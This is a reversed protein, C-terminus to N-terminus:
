WKLFGRKKKEPAPPATTPETRAAPAPQVPAASEVAVSFTHGCELCKEVNNPLEYLSKRGCKGCKAGAIPKIIGSEAKKRDLDLEITQVVESLRRALKAAAVADKGSLAGRIMLTLSSPEQVDIGHEAAERLVPEFAILAARARELQRTELEKRIKMQQLHASDTAKEISALLEVAKRFSGDNYARRAEALDVEATPVQAGADKAEAASARVLNFAVDIEKVRNEKAMEAHRRAEALITSYQAIDFASKAGAAIELYRRPEETRTGFSEYDALLERLEAEERETGSMFAVYAKSALEELNELTEERQRPSGDIFARKAAALATRLTPDIFGKDAPMRSLLEEAARISVAASYVQFASFNSLCKMRAERNVKIAQS